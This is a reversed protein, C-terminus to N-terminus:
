VIAKSLGLESQSEPQSSGIREVVLRYGGNNSYTQQVSTGLAIFEWTGVIKDHPSASHAEASGGPHSCATLSTTVLALLVIRITLHASMRNHRRVTITNVM